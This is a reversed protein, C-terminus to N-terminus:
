DSVFWGLIKGIFSKPKEPEPAYVEFEEEQKKRGPRQPPPSYRNMKNYYHQRRQEKERAKEQQKRRLAERAERERQLAVMNKRPKQAQKRDAGKGKNAKGARAPPRKEDTGEGAEPADEAKKKQGPLEIKGLVKLGPLEVPLPKIVEKAVDETGAEPAAEELGSTLEPEMPAPHGVPNDEDTEPIEDEIKGTSLGPAFHSLVAELQKGEIKTNSSGETPLGKGALFTAIEGPKVGIKRALQALRMKTKENRNNGLGFIAIGVPLLCPM